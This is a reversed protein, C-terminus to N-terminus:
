ITQLRSASGCSGLKAREDPSLTAMVQLVKLVPYVPGFRSATKFEPWDSSPMDRYRQRAWRFNHRFVTMRSALQIEAATMEGCRTM